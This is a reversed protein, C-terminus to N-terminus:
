HNTSNFAIHMNYYLPNSQLKSLIDESIKSPVTIDYFVINYFKNEPLRSDFTISSGNYYEVYRKQNHKLSGERINMKLLRCKSQSGIHSNSLILIKVYRTKLQQALIQAIWVYISSIGIQRSQMLITKDNNFFKNIILKQHDYLNFKVKGQVPDLRVFNNQIYSIVSDSTLSGFKSM